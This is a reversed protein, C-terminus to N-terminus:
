APSRRWEFRYRTAGNPMFGDARLSFGCARYFALAPELTDGELADFKHRLDDILARGVGGRRAEPLVALDRIVARTTDIIEIGALGVVKDAVEYGSLHLNASAAYEAAIAPGREAADEPARHVQALGLLRAVDPERERGRLSVIRGADV